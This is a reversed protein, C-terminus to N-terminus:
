PFLFDSSLRKAENEMDWGNPYVVTRIMSKSGAILKLVKQSTALRLRGICTSGEVGEGYAACGRPM